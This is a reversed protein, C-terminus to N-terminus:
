FKGFAKTNFYALLKTALIRQNDPLEAILSNCENMSVGFLTPDRFFLHLGHGALTGFMFKLIPLIDGLGNLTVPDDPLADTTDKIDTTDDKIDSISSYEWSLTIRGYYPLTDDTCLYYLLDGESMGVMAATFYVTYVGNGLNVLDAAILSATQWSAPNEPNRYKCVFGTSSTTVNTIPTYFDSPDQFIVPLRYAYNPEYFGM